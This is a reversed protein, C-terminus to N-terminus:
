ARYVLFVYNKHGCSGEQPDTECPPRIGFVENEQIRTESTKRDHDIFVSLADVADALEERMNEIEKEPLGGPASIIAQVAPCGSRLFNVAEAAIEQAQDRGSYLIVPIQGQLVMVLDSSQCILSAQPDM